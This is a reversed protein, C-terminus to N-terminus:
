AEGAISRLERSHWVRTVLVDGDGLIAYRLVFSSRGFKAAWERFEARPTGLGPNEAILYGAARIVQAARSAAAVSNAALFDHLREVDDVADPHWIM